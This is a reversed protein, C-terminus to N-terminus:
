AQGAILTEVYVLAIIILDTIWTSLCARVLGRGLALVLTAAILSPRQITVIMRAIINILTSSRWTVTICCAAVSFATECTCAIIAPRSIFRDTCQSIPWTNIEVFAGIIGMIALIWIALTAVSQTAELTDTLPAITEAVMVIVVGSGVDTNVNVFAGLAVVVAAWTGSASILIDIL